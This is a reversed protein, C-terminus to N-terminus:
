ADIMTSSISVKAQARVLAALRDWLPFSRDRGHRHRMAGPPHYCTSQSVDDEPLAAARAQDADARLLGSSREEQLRYAYNMRGIM